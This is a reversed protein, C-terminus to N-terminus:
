GAAVGWEEQNYLARRSQSNNDRINTFEQTVFTVVPTDVIPLVYADEAVIRAAENVYGAAEERTTSTAADRVLEDVEENAYGGFNSGSESHWYQEASASFEPTQSWGFLMLDYDQEALTGGLDDTTQIEATVGIEALDAQILEAKTARAVHGETYRLRLPPVAEGDRTLTEGDLEYGADELIALAAETDGSGQGTDTLVDEHFPSDASFVHNTRLAYDPYLGGYTREALNGTDIATFIARRLEVDQLWESEVNADVHEWSGGSGFGTRVTGLDQLQTIVDENWTEPSSGDIEGNALAPIWSGEDTIFRITIRDLNAPEGYYDENRVKVVQNELDGEEIIFPGGSWDPVTENFWEASELMGEPTDLDFGEEEARHAPFLGDEFSVFWEPSAVGEDMTVVVTSDDDGPEISAILSEPNTDRSRCIDACLEEDNSNMRWAWRFDEIGIPTGDNWVAEPNLHYEWTMPDESLLEPEETLLDTNWEWDGSPAWQGVSAFIGTTAQLGYVSGGEPQYHNWGGFPQSVVWTIDGGQEVEGSNCTNPEAECDEFGSATAGDDGGGSCATLALLVAAAAAAPGKGFRM